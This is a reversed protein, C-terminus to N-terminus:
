GAKKAVAAEAASLQKKLADRTARPGNRPDYGRLTSQYAQEDPTREPVIAAPRPSNPAGGINGLAKAIGEDIRKQIEAETNPPTPAASKAKAVTTEGAKPPEKGQSIKRALIRVQRTFAEPSDWAGAAQLRPDNWAIREDDELGFEVAAQDALRQAYQVTAQQQEQESPQRATGGRELASLRTELRQNNLRLEEKERQEPPLSALYAQQQQQEKETLSAGLANLRENTQNIQVALTTNANTLEAIKRGSQSLRNRLETIQTDREDVTPPSVSEETSPPESDGADVPPNQEDIQEDLTETDVTTM